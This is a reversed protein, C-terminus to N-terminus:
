VSALMDPERRRGRKRVAATLVHVMGLLWLRRAGALAWVFWEGYLSLWCKEIVEYM